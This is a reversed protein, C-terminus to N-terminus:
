VPRRSRFAIRFDLRLIFKLLVRACSGPVTCLGPPKGPRKKGRGQGMPQRPVLCAGQHGPGHTVHGIMARSGGRGRRGGVGCKVWVALCCSHPPFLWNVLPALVHRTRDRRRHERSRGDGNEQRHTQKGELNGSQSMAWPSGSNSANVHGVVKWTRTRSGARADVGRREQALLVLPWNSAEM